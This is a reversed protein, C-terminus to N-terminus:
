EPDFANFVRGALYYIYDVVLKTNQVLYEETPVVYSFDFDHVVNLGLVAFQETNLGALPPPFESLRGDHHALVNRVVGLQELRERVKQDPFAPVQVTQQMALEAAVLLPRSRFVKFSVPKGTRDGARTAIDNTCRELVSWLTILFGGRFVKPLLHIVQQQLDFLDSDRDDPHLTAGLNQHEARLRAIEIHRALELQEEVIRRTTELSAVRINVGPFAAAERFLRELPDQSSM